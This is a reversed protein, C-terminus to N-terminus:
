GEWGSEFPYRAEWLAKLRPEADVRRVVGSLRPALAYFAKRMPEWRSIVTVYLDLVGLEDGLLYRGPVLQQEMVTWCHGIRQEIRDKLLAQQAIDSVLRSPEDRAWYLAYISASVFAMWRLFAARRPDSLGPAMRADPYTDALWILIAASETMIEGSPLRLAPVQQMPNAKALPSTPWQAHPPAEEVAFPLGLLTLAAEIIVSGSGSQGFVLFAENM